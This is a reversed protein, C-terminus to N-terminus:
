ARKQGPRRRQRVRLHGRDSKELDFAGAKRVVDSLKPQGYSRPDFDPAINQLRNGLASLTVWGEDDELDAMARLILPVARSPPEKEPEDAQAAETKPLAVAVPAIGGPMEGAVAIEAHGLNDFYIFRNCANRFAQPTKREGFGIVEKGSERLRQALRTFDSDSSVLCFTDVAGTHMLDMADIVLAIDATNKGTVYNFQQQPLIALEQLRKVWGGLRPSTVDGYLRRVNAEGHKAVEEFIVAAHAASANDADILVAVRRTGNEM